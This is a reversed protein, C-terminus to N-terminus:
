DCAYPEINILLHKIRREVEVEHDDTLFSQFILFIAKKFKCWTKARKKEALWMALIESDNLTKSVSYKELYSISDEGEL